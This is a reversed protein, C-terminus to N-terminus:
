NQGDCERRYKNTHETFQEEYAIDEIKKNKNPTFDVTHQHISADLHRPVSDEIALVVLRYIALIVYDLAVVSNFYVSLYERFRENLFGDTGFIVVDIDIVRM